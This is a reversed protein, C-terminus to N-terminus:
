NRRLYNVQFTLMILANNYLSFLLNVLRIVLTVIINKNKNFDSLVYLYRKIVITVSIDNSKSM